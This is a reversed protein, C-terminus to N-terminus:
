QRPAAYNLVDDKTIVKDCLIILREIVNRFERINGTWKLKQLESIAEDDIAKQPIGYETCILDIFYEALVPIDELRDPDRVQEQARARRV